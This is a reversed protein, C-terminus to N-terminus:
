TGDARGLSNCVWEAVADLGRFDEVSRIIADPRFERVMGSLARGPGLELLVTCGLEELSRLCAAWDITTSIQDSLTAIAAKRDRVPMGDIGSLVPVQPDGLGAQELLARFATGADKLRSTHAAVQVRLPTVSAGLHRASDSFVAVDDVRGGVIFRDFSNVIAIEAGTQRCLTEVRSRPLGRIAAMSGRQRSSEDMLTARDRALRVLITASLSGACGYAALEGVSYGAFAIPPPLLDELAAWTALETACLLPQAIRNRYMDCTPKLWERVDQGLGQRTEALVRGALENGSLIDMMEPHQSGQGPCLVGLGM